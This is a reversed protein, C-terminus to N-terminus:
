EGLPVVEGDRWEMGKHYLHSRWEPEGWPSEGRGMNVWRTVRVWREAARRGTGEEEEVGFDTPFLDCSRRSERRRCSSKERVEHGQPFQQRAQNLPCGLISDFENNLNKGGTQLSPCLYVCVQHAGKRQQQPPIRHHACMLLRGDVVKFKASVRCGHYSVNTFSLAAPTLSSRHNLVANRVSLFTIARGAFLYGLPEDDISYCQRKKRQVFLRHLLSRPGEHHHLQLRYFCAYQSPIDVALLSLFIQREKKDAYIGRFLNSYRTGLIQRLSHSCLTFAAASALPLYTAIHQILENSLSYLPPLAEVSANHDAMTLEM